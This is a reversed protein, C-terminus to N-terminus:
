DFRQPVKKLTQGVLRRNLSHIEVITYHASTDKPTRTLPLENNGDAVREVDVEIFYEESEGLKKTRVTWRDGFWCAATKMGM